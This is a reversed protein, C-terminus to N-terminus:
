EDGRIVTPPRTKAEALGRAVGSCIRSREEATKSAALYKRASVMDGALGFQIAVYEPFKYRVSPYPPDFDKMAEDIGNYHGDFAERCAIVTLVDALKVKDKVVKCLARADPVDGLHALATALEAATDGSWEGDELADPVMPKLLDIATKQRGTRLLVPIADNVVMRRLWKDDSAVAALASDITRTGAAVNGRDVQGQALRALALPRWEPDRRQVLKMAAADDGARALARPGPAVFPDPSEANAEALRGAAALEDALQYRATELLDKDDIHKQDAKAKDFQKARARADAVEQWAFPFRSDTPWGAATEARDLDGADIWARCVTSAGAGKHTLKQYAAEIQAATAAAAKLDGADAESKVIEGLAYLRLGADASPIADAEKRAMALWDGPTDAPAHATSVLVGLCFIASKRFHSM